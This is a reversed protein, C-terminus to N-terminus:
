TEYYTVFKIKTQFTCPLSGFSYVGVVTGTGWVTHCKLVNLDLKYAKTISFFRLPLCFIIRNIAYTDQLM